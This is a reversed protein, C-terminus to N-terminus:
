FVLEIGVSAKNSMGIDKSNATVCSYLTIQKDIETKICGSLVGQDSLKARIVTRRNPKYRIGFSYDPVIGSGPKLSCCAAVRFDRRIYYYMYLNITSMLDYASCGVIM